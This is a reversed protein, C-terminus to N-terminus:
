RKTFKYSSPCTQYSRVNLVYTSGLADYLCQKTMGGDEVARRFYGTVERASASYSENAAAASASSSPRSFRESPRCAQYSQVTKVYTSGLATYICQKTLGGSDSEREFYGTVETSQAGLTAVPVLLARCAVAVALLKSNM